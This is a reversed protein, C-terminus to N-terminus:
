ESAARLQPYLRAHRNMILAGAMVDGKGSFLKTLSTVSM